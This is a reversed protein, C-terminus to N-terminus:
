GNIFELLRRNRSRNNKRIATIYDEVLTLAGNIGVYTKNLAATDFLPYSIGLKAACIEDAADNELSSGLIVEAGSGSIIDGIDKSDQSYYIEDAIGKLLEYKESVACDNVPFYDTIVASVIKAGLNTKLFEATRIVTSEDGVVAAYRGLSYEYFSDATLNFFYRFKKEEEDLFEAARERDIQISESIIGVFEKVKDIGVPITDLKVSQIGYLSELTDAAKEGWKSFVINLSAASAKSFEEVGNESGFFTNVELGINELIRKIEYLDGKFFIDQKPVIGLINVLRPDKDNIPNKVTPLKKFIDALVNEYGYHADGHFGATLSDIVPEGQEVAERTMADVDDGVMASECSNLVIYLDANVVKITNKIQERLRSAGGFIVHREQVATGPIASGSLFGVGAASAKNSYYNQVACGGNSHVIPVAGKIETVTQLAGHLGCGGRPNKVVTKM